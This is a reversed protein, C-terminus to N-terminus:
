AADVATDDNIKSQKVIVKTNGNTIGLYHNKIFYRVTSEPLDLVEAIRTITFNTVVHMNIVAAIFENSYSRDGVQWNKM